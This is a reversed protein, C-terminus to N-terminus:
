INFKKNIRDYIKYIDEPIGDHNKGCHKCNETKGMRKNEHLLLYPKLKLLYLFRISDSLYNKDSEVFKMNQILDMISECKELLLKIKTLNPIEIFIDKDFHNQNVKSCILLTENIASTGKLDVQWKKGGQSREANYLIDNLEQRLYDVQNSIYIQSKQYEGERKQEQFQEYVLENAKIQAFLALYVLIAGLIGTIPATIGGITDGIEGTNEFIIVGNTRTFIYPAIVILAIGIILITRATKETNFNKKM